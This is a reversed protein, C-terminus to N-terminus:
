MQPICVFLVLLHSLFVSPFLSLCRYNLLKSWVSGSRRLPGGMWGPSILWLLFLSDATALCCKGLLMERQVGVYLLDAVPAPSLKDKAFSVILATTQCFRVFCNSDTSDFHLIPPQVSSCTQADDWCSSPALFCQVCILKYLHLWKWIGKFISQQPNKDNLVPACRSLACSCPPLTHHLNISLGGSLHLM